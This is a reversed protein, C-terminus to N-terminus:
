RSRCPTRSRPRWRGITVTVQQELPGRRLLARLRALLENFSFPKVLYDDAGANLGEVRDDVSDRATLVLIPQLFSETRLQRLFELGSGDPLMLDLVLIDPTMGIAKRAETVSAAGTVDYDEEQFGRVLNRLVTPQDEVVLVRTM